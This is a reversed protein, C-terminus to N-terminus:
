DPQLDYPCTALFQPTPKHRTFRLLRFAEVLDPPLESGRPQSRVRAFYQYVRDRPNLVEGGQFDKRAVGVACLVNKGQFLYVADNDGAVTLECLANDALWELLRDNDPRGAHKTTIKQGVDHDEWDQGLLEQRYRPSRYFIVDVATPLVLEAAKKKAM